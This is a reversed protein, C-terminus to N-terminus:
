ALVLSAILMIMIAAFGAVAVYSVRAAPWKRVLKGGAGVLYILWGLSGFIIKSLVKPTMGADQGAGHMQFPSTAIVVTMFILGVVMALWTMRGLSELPPLRDFLLGFRHQKLGRLTLLHLMGYVAAITMGTYAMVAPMTHLWAWGTTGAPKVATPIHPALATTATYQFLFVLFMVFVGTRRDHTAFEVVWYVAATALAIISLVEYPWTEPTHGLHAARVILSVLHFVVVVALWPHREEPRARLFFTAGYDVLVALYLLPLLWNAIILANDM